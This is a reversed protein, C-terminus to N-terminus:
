GLLNHQQSLMLRLVWGQNSLEDVQRASLTATAIGDRRGPPSAGLRELTDVALVPRTVDTQILVSLCPQDPDAVDEVAGALAADLKRYEMTM